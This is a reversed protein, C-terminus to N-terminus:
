VVRGVELAVMHDSLRQRRELSNSSSADRMFDNHGPLDNLYACLIV